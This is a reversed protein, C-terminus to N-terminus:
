RATRWGPSAHRWALASQEHDYLRAALELRVERADLGITLPV